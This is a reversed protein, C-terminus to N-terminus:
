GFFRNFYLFVLVILDSFFANIGNPMNAYKIKANKLCGAFQFGILVALISEYSLYANLVGFEKTTMLRSFVPTTIFAIGKILIGGLIYGIGASAVKKMGVQNSM